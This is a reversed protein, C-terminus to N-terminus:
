PMLRLSTTSPRFWLGSGAQIKKPTATSVTFLNYVQCVHVAHPAASATPPGQAAMFFGLPFGLIPIVTGQEAPGSSTSSTALSSVLLPSRAHLPTTTQRFPRTNIPKQTTNRHVM